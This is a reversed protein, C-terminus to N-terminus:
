TMAVFLQAAAKVQAAALAAGAGGDLGHAFDGVPDLGILRAAKGFGGPLARALRCHALARPDEGYLVAAAALAAPGDLLVPIKEMRAALIAGAIAAIERTGLRALAGLPDAIDRRHFALAREALSKEPAEFLDGGLLAMIIAQAHVGNGRGFDGFGLLDAGGAVAEMGFAMTAATAREDLAAQVTIDGVPLDLALDLVKLTLNHMGCLANVAAGGSEAKDVLAKTAANNANMDGTANAGAFVAITPRLIMPPCKGQWAAHWAALDVFGGLDGHLASLEEARARVRAAAERDSDPMHRLLRRFDDFPNATM